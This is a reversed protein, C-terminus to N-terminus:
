IAQCSTSTWETASLESPTATASSITPTPGPIALPPRLSQQRAQAGRDASWINSKPSKLLPNIGGIAFGAGM